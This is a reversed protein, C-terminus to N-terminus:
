RRKVVTPGVRGSSIRIDGDTAQLVIKEGGGNLKGTARVHTKGNVQSRSVSLGAIDSVFTDVNPDTTIITADVEAGFKPDVNLVVNGKGTKAHVEESRRIPDINITVDGSTTVAHVPAAAQRVIIDGGGSTLRTPGSTYLLRITGGRTEISGGRRTSDVLIDGARTHATLTGLIEGLQLPGGASRVNCDGSVAGLQVEGAGTTISASGNVEAIKVDGINTAYTFSGNVTGRQLVRPGPAPASTMSAPQSRPQQQQPRERNIAPRISQTPSGAVTGSALLHVNGMLSTTTITPGGPANVSGRFVAGIFTGRAPLNTRIDGRATEAVWRFDLTSDVTASVHGNLTTLVVNGLPKPTNYGISGNVSEVIVAGTANTLSVNGNFNKVRVSGGIDVIRIIQSNSAMVHVSTSRPVRVSWNAIVSWPKALRYSNGALGVVRTNADGRTVITAQREAEQLLQANPAALVTVITAEAETVDAGIFEINGVPNELVFSGGPAITFKQVARNTKRLVTQGPQQQALAVSAVPLVFVAILARIKM